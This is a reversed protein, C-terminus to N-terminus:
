DDKSLRGAPRESLLSVSFSAEETAVAQGQRAVLRLQYTAARFTKTPMFGIYRIEGSPEPAPVAIPVEGVMTGQRRLEAHLTVAERSRSDPYLVVFFRVGEDAGLTPTAKLMPMLPNGHYVFPDDKSTDRVFFSGRSQLLIVSSIRLDDTAAPADIVSTRVSARETVVERVLTDVNYRGPALPISATWVLPRGIFGLESGTELPLDETLFRQFRSDASRVRTLIQVRGRHRGQEEKLRLESLPVEVAFTHLIGGPGSEFRLVSAWCEIDDANPRAELVRTMEAEFPSLARVVRPELFPGAPGRVAVRPRLARVTVRGAEGSIPAYSVEYHGRQQLARFTAVRQRTADQVVEVEQLTLDEIPRGNADEAVFELIVTPPPGKEEALTRTSSVQLSLAVAVMFTSLACLPPHNRGPRAPTGQVM